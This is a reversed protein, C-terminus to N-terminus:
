GYLCAIYVQITFLFLGHILRFDKWPIFVASCGRWGEASNFNDAIFAQKSSPFSTCNIDSFIPYLRVLIYAHRFRYKFSPIAPSIFVLSRFRPLSFGFESKEFSDAKKQPHLYSFDKGNRTIEVGYNTQPYSIFEKESHSICRCGLERLREAARRRLPLMGKWKYGYEEMDTQEISADPMLEIEMAAAKDEEDLISVEEKIEEYEDIIKVTNGNDVLNRIAKDLEQGNLSTVTYEGTELVGGLMYQKEILVVKKGM